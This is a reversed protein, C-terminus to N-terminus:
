HQGPFSYVASRVVGTEVTYLHTGGDSAKASHDIRNVTFAAYIWM